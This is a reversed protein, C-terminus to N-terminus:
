AFSAGLRRADPAVEGKVIEGIASVAQHVLLPQTSASDSLELARAALGNRLAGPDAENGLLSGLQNLTSALSAILRFGSASDGEGAALSVRDLLATTVSAPLTVPSAVALTETVTASSGMVDYCISRITWNGPPPLWMIFSTLSPEGLGVVSLGDRGISNRTLYAFSYRLPLDEADDDTWGSAVM